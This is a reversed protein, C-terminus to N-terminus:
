WLSLSSPPLCSYSKSAAREPCVRSMHSSLHLAHSSPVPRSALLPSPVLQTQPKNPPRAEGGRRAPQQPTTRRSRSSSAPKPYCTACGSAVM